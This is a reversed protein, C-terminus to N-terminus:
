FYEVFRGRLTNISNLKGVLSEICGDLIYTECWDTEHRIGRGIGQCIKNLADYQYWGKIYEKKKKVYENGLHAFPVKICIQFRCMDDPLNIGEILTPGILIANDRKHEMFMKLADNKTSSSDYFLCRNLINSPLARRLTESNSYSGTQIIGCSNEYKNCIDITQKIIPKFSMNKEAYSMKNKTSFWILSNSFDFTSKMSISKFTNKDLGAIHAYDSFDGITASMLLECRSKNHFYKTLMMNDFVFNLTIDNESCTKVLYESVGLEAVFNLMDEFKCHEQRAMNGALLAHKDDKSLKRKSALKERISENLGVYYGIYSKYRYVNSILQNSSSCQQIDEVIGLRTFDTRYDKVYENLTKMWSPCEISIRPAFHAQCIDCIKHCEDAIVLDREPFNRNKGGLVDDEVYNRQIFYLQYTMLTIPSSMAKIYDHYYQCNAKCLFEYSRVLSTMSRGQLSCTSQSAPCGNDNCIYNEKGKLYGFCDVNLHDIDNKYQDFLSLDSTLIYSTKGYLKYLVYASIIAIISKGSGTPAELVTQKIKNQTNDVVDRIVDLQGPRFKFKEGFLEIACKEIDDVNVM